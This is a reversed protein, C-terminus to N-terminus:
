TDSRNEERNGEEVVEERRTRYSHTPGSSIKAFVEHDTTECLHVAVTDDFRGSSYIDSHDCWVVGTDNERSLRPPRGGRVTTLPCWVVLRVHPGHTAKPCRRSSDNSSEFLFFFRWDASRRVSGYRARM